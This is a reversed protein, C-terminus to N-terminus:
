VEIVERVAADFALARVRQPEVAATAATRATARRGRIAAALVLVTAGVFLTAAIFAHDAGVVFTARASAVSQGAVVRGATGFVSVLVALGLAGGMQQM